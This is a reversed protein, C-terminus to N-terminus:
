ILLQNKDMRLIGCSQSVEESRSNLFIVAIDRYSRAFILYLWSLGQFFVLHAILTLAWTQKWNSSGYGSWHRPYAPVGYTDQDTDPAHLYGAPIRVLTPPICTGRLYGSWHRPCAPVGCTDQDIDVTHLFRGVLGKRLTEWPAGNPSTKSAGEHGMSLTDGDSPQKWKVGPDSVSSPTAFSLTKARLPFQFQSGPDM